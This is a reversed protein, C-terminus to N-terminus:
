LHWGAPREKIPRAPAGVATVNAPLDKVVVAGAGVVTWEGIRKGQIVVGGTGLDCGEGVDVNGSVNVSPAGTVFDHLVADHGVTCGLNLIVHRGIEIDTTVMTGACLVSGEGISVNRGVWARPHVLTAFPADSVDRIRHVVARRVATAGIAVVASVSDRGALWDVGGLVPLDHVMAGRLEPRDDLFGAIRWQPDVDNLDLAVQLVERAFGGTGVIVLDRM